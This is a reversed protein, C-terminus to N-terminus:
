YLKKVGNDKGGAVEENIGSGSSGKGGERSENFSKSCPDKSDSGGVKEENLKVDSSDHGVYEENGKVNEM